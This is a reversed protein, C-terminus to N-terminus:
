LAELKGRVKWLGLVGFEASFHLGETMAALIRIVSVATAKGTPYFKKPM